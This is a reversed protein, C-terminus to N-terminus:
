VSEATGAGPESMKERRNTARELAAVVAQAVEALRAVCEELSVLREEFQDLAAL